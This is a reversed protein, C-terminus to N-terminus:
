CLVACTSGVDSCMRLTREPVARRAIDPTHPCRESSHAIKPCAARRPSRDLFAGLQGMNCAHLIMMSCFDLASIYHAYCHPSGACPVLPHTSHVLPCLHGATAQGPSQRRTCAQKM